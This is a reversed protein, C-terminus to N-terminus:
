EKVSKIGSIIMLKKVIEQLTIKGDGDCDGWSLINILMEEVQDQTFMNNVSISLEKYEYELDIYTISLQNYEDALNYLNNARCGNSFVASDPPTSPCEDWEDTVGDKDSDTTNCEELKNITVDINTSDYTSNENGGFGCSFDISDGKDVFVTNSFSISENFDNILANWIVQYNHLISVDSTTPGVNDIGTAVTNILYIGNEPAIWRIIANQGNSGPHFTVGHPKHYASISYIEEDTPNYYVGLYSSTDGWAFTGNTHTFSKTFIQFEDGRTVSWGYSWVSSPNNVSSFDNALHYTEANCIQMLLFLYFIISLPLFIKKMKGGYSM